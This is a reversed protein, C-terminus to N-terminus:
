RSDLGGEIENQGGRFKIKKSKGDNYTIVNM